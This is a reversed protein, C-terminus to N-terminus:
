RIEMNHEIVVDLMEADYRVPLVQGDHYDLRYFAFADDSLSARSEHAKRVCERSHTTAVIQVDLEEALRYLISFIERQASHHLGNEIEDVLLMGGSVESMVLGLRLIRNLGEGLLHVPIPRSSGQLYAHIVPIDEVSILLLRELRPEIPRILNLLKTEDGELQLRSLRTANTQPDDRQLAPMFASNPRHPVMQREQRIGQSTLPPAFPVTSLQQAVLWARSIYEQRNNHRYKFVIEADDEIASISLQDTNGPVGPVRANYRFADTQQHDQLFVELTRSRNGWSGYAAIRIRSSTDFNHFLDRFVSDRGLVSLGRLAGAMACLEPNDPGSLFGLAELVATKGVGNKGAILTIRGLPDLTLSEINRFNSITLKTLM